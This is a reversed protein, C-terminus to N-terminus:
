GEEQIVECQGWNYRQSIENLDIGKKQYKKKVATVYKGEFCKNVSNRSISIKLESKCLEDGIGLISNQSKVNRERMLENQLSLADISKTKRCSLCVFEYRVLPRTVFFPLYETEGYL